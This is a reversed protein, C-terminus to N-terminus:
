PFLLDLPQEPGNRPFSEKVYCPVSWLPPLCMSMCYNKNKQGILIVRM